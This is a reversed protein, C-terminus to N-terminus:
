KEIDNLQLQSRALPRIAFIKATFGARCTRPSATSGSMRRSVALDELVRGAREVDPRNVSEARFRIFQGKATRGYGMPFDGSLAHALTRPTCNLYEPRSPNQCFRKNAPDDCFECARKLVEIMRMYDDPRYSYFRETTALVKEPYGSSIQESTAACWGYGEEVALSNWPEGVCFGDINEAALNRM